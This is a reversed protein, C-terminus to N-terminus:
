MYYQKESLIINPDKVRVRFNLMQDCPQDSQAAKVTFEQRIMDDIYEYPDADSISPSFQSTVYTLWRLFSQNQYYFKVKQMTMDLNASHNTSEQKKCIEQKSYTYLTM